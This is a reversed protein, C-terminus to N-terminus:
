GPWAGAIRDATEDLQVRIRNPQLDAAVPDVSVGIRVIEFGLERARLCAADHPLGVLSLALNRAADFRLRLEAALAPRM